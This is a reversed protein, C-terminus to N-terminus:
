RFGAAMLLAGFVLTVMVAGALIDEVSGAAHRPSLANGEQAIVNREFSDTFKIKTISNAKNSQYNSAATEMIEEIKNPLLTKPAAQTTRQLRNAAVCL